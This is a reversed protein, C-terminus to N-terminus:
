VRHYKANLKGAVMKLMNGTAPRGTPVYAKKDGQKEKTIMRARRESIEQLEKQMLAKAYDDPEM